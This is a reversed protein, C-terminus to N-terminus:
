RRVVVAMAVQTVWHSEPEWCRASASAKGPSAPSESATGPVGVSRPLKPTRIGSTPAQTAQWPGM